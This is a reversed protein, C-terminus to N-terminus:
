SSVISRIAALAEPTDADLVVGQNDVTVEVVDEKLKELLGRAGRDGECALLASFHEAGWLMPNGYTSEHVPVVISRNEAPNFAAIMRNIDRPDILPMDGLCVLIADCSNQLAAVGKRLSTALGEAFLPNHIITVNQNALASTVDEAQYGTVVSVSAIQAEVIREITRSIMPKGQLDALLKNSGMRSSKGAALVLAAIRPASPHTPKPDRPSPRSPIEALLGGVGMDMIDPPTVDIGAMVRALVWDFGNTKLSRACSPVGIVTRNNIRGLMLLNGPDVPMGMHLVTGGARVLGSPIIDARDVIASAGFLLIIDTDLKQIEFSVAAETHDCLVVVELVGGMAELRERIASESKAVLAQKTQPLRTVILGVSLNKFPTLKVLPADAIIKLASNLAARSTAFPIIKVTAVMDHKKVRAYNPLTALTLSEHVLNVGRIRLTDLVVLGAAEAYLNARGTFAEQSQIFPGCVAVSLKRAAIDEAIDDTDLRSAIIETVGAAILAAADEKTLTRGKKFTVDGVRLAHALIAGEADHPHLRGFKM